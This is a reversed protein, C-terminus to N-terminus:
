GKYRKSEQIARSLMHARTPRSLLYLRYISVPLQNDIKAWVSFLFTIMLKMLHGLTKRREPFGWAEMPGWLELQNDQLLPSHLPLPPQPPCLCTSTHLLCQALLKHGTGWSDGQCGPLWPDKNDGKINPSLHMVQWLKRTSHTTLGPNQEPPNGLAWVAVQTYVSGRM